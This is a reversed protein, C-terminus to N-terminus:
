VAGGISFHRRRGERGSTEGAGQAPEDQGPSLVIWLFTWFLFSEAPRHLPFDVLALALIAILGAAAGTKEPGGGRKAAATSRRIALAAVASFLLLGALGYDVLIELYDNHAHRQLGAFREAGPPLTGEALRATEWRPYDLAFSGPGGGLWPHDLVHPLSVRWIHVRGQVTETLPRAASLLVVVAALVALGLASRRSSRFLSGVALILLVLAPARSGTALTGAAVVALALWALTRRWGAARIAVAWAAPASAALFAAVFNPNGLTGYVRMRPSGYAPGSWGLLGFPNLGSYQVLALAAVAGGSLTAAQLLATPEPRLGCLLLFAGVPLLALLLIEVSAERSGLASASVASAWGPVLVLVATGCDALPHIRAIALVVLGSVVWVGLLALKPTSFPAELGPVVVLPLVATVGVAAWRTWRVAAGGRDATPGPAGTM